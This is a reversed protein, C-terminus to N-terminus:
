RKMMKRSERLWCRLVTEDAVGPEFDQMRRLVFSPNPFEIM